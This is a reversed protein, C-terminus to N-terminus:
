IKIRDQTALAKVRAAKKQEFEADYYMENKWLSYMLCLLKRQVAVVAIMPKAKKPKLREYFPKLTPNVRVAALAPM